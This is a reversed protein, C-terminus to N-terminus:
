GELRIRMQRALRLIRVEKRLREDHAIQPDIGLRRQMSYVSKYPRNLILAIDAASKDTHLKIYDIEDRTWPQKQKVM